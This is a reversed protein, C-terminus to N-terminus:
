VIINSIDATYKVFQNLISGKSRITSSILPNSIPMETDIGIPGIPIIQTCRVNCLPWSDPNMDPSPAADASLKKANIAPNPIPKRADNKSSCRSQSINIPPPM